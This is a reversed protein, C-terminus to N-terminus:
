NCLLESLHVKSPYTLLTSLYIYSIFTFSVFLQHSYSIFTHALTVQYYYKFITASIAPKYSTKLLLFQRNILLEYSCRAPSPPLLRYFYSFPTSALLIRLLYQTTLWCYYNILTASLTAILLLSIKTTVSSYSIPIGSVFVNNSFCAVVVFWWLCACVILFQWCVAVFQWCIVVFYWCVVVFQWYAVVFPWGQM